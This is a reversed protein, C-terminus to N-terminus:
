LSTLLTIHDVCGEQIWVLVLLGQYLGVEGSAITISRNIFSYTCWGWFQQLSNSFRNLLILMRSFPVISMDFKNCIRKDKEPPIVGWDESPGMEIFAYDLAGEHFFVSITDFTEWDVWMSSNNEIAKRLELQLDDMKLSMTLMHLFYIYISVRPFRFALDPTGGLIYAFYAMLWFCNGGDFRITM